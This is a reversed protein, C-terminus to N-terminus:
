FEDLDDSNSASTTVGGNSQAQWEPSKAIKEQEFKDLKAFVEHQNASGIDFMVIPNVAEAVKTGKVVPKVRAVNAYVKTPDNKKANHFITVECIKNIFKSLDLASEEQATFSRGMWGELIPRLKSKAHTSVTFEESVRFPQPGLEEKFVPMKGTEQDVADPLEWSIRVKHNEKIEKTVPDAYQQTGLDIIRVCRANHKKDEPLITKGSGKNSATLM